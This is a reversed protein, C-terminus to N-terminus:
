APHVSICVVLIVILINLWARMLVLFGPRGSSFSCYLKPHPTLSLYFDYVYNFVFTSYLLCSPFMSLSLYYCISQPKLLSFIPAYTYCSLICLIRFLPSIFTMSCFFFPGSETSVYHDCQM